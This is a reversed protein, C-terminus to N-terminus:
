LVVETGEVDRQDNRTSAADLLTGAHALSGLLSRIGSAHQSALVETPALLVAQGGDAVVDLMARVAVVTKGSGVDGQLLRQMPVDRSLDASIQAGVDRQGDTLAFPLAADFAERLPSGIHTRPTARHGQAVLRREVLASQLVFAEEFALRRHAQEIEDRTTPRHIGELAEQLDLLSARKRLSQDIPDFDALDPGFTDLVVGVSTQIQWSTVSKSSRYVPIIAGAFGAVAQEDAEDLMVYQPHALQRRDRYTSVTGAFLGRQGARLERERWPQNFFTIVLSDTGDTVLVEVISGKKSRMRRTTVSAIDAVITVHDGDTLSAIATLEGREAYRRPYHRLLDGVTTLGLGRELAGATRGGLVGRLPTDFTM